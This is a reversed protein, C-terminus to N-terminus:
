TMYVRSLSPAAAPSSDVEECNIRECIWDCCSNNNNERGEALSLASIFASLLDALGGPVDRRELINVFAPLM